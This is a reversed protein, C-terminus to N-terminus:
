RAHGPQMRYCRSHEDWIIQDRHERWFSAWKEQLGTRRHARVFSRLVQEPTLAPSSRELFTDWELEHATSRGSPDKFLDLLVVLAVDGVQMGKWGCLIPHGVPHGDTLARALSEVSRVGHHEIRAMIQKRDKGSSDQIREHSICNGRSLKVLNFHLNDAPQQAALTGAFLVFLVCVAKM